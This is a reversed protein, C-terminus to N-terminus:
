LNIQLYLSGDADCLIVCDELEKDIMGIFDDIRSLRIGSAIDFEIEVYTSKKDIHVRKVNSFYGYAIDEIDERLWSIKTDLEEIQENLKTLKDKCNEIEKIKENIDKQILKISKSIDKFESMIIVLTRHMMVKKM